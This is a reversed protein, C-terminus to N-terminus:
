CDSQQTPKEGRRLRKTAQAVEAQDVALDPEATGSAFALRSRKAPSGGAAAACPATEPLEAEASMDLASSAHTKADSIQVCVFDKWIM